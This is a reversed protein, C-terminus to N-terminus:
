PHVGLEGALAALARDIQDRQETWQRARSSRRQRVSPDRLVATSSDAIAAIDLYPVVTIGVPDEPTTLNDTVVAPVEAEIADVVLARARPDRSTVVVLDAALVSTPSAALPLCHFRDALGVHTVDFLFPWRERPTSDTLWLFHLSTSPLLRQLRWAVVPFLEPASWWDREGTSVIIKADDPVGLRARIEDPDGPPRQVGVRGVLVGVCSPEVGAHVLRRQDEPDEALFRATHRIVLLRDAPSLADLSGHGPPVSTVVRPHRATLWGVIRASAPDTCYIVPAHRQRWLWLRLRASKLARAVSRLGVADVLRALWWQDIASILRVRATPSLGRPPSTAWTLVDCAEGHHREIWQVLEVLAPDHPGGAGCIFVPRSTM